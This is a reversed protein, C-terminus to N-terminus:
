HGYDKAFLVVCCLRMKAVGKPGVPMGSRQTTEKQLTWVNRCFSAKIEAVGTLWFNDSTLCLNRYM